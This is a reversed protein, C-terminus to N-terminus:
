PKSASGPNEAQAQKKLLSAVGERLKDFTSRTAEKSKVKRELEDIQKQFDKASKDDIDGLAEGRQLAATAAALHTSAGAKEKEDAKQATEDALKLAAQVELLPISTPRDVIVLTNLATALVKAADDNKGEEMLRAATTLASPYTALPLNYTRVRIESRLMDLMTRATGFHHDRIADRALDAVGKIAKPDVPANDAVEVEFKVPILATKQNRALLINVKGTAREMAALAGKKDKKTVAALANETEAIAAMAERNLSAQAMEQGQKRQTEIGPRAEAQAPSPAKSDTAGFAPAFTAAIGMAAAILPVLVNRATRSNLKTLDKNSM